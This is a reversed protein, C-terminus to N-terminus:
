SALRGIWSSKAYYFSLSDSLFNRLVTSYIYATCIRVSASSESLIETEKAEMRKPENVIHWTKLWM